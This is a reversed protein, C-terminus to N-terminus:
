FTIGDAIPAAVFQLMVKTGTPLFGLFGSAMIPSVGTGITGGPAARVIELQATGSVGNVGNVYADYNFGSSSSVWADIDVSKTSPFKISYIGTAVYTASVEPVGGSGVGTPVGNPPVTKIGFIGSGIVNFVQVGMAGDEGKPFFTKLPGQPKHGFSM